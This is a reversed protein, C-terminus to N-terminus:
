EQLGLSNAFWIGTLSWCGCCLINRLVTAAVHCSMGGYLKEPQLQGGRSTGRWIYAHIKVSVWPDIWVHSHLYTGSIVCTACWMYIHFLYYSTRSDTMAYHQGVVTAGSWSDTCRFDSTKGRQSFCTSQEHSKPLYVLSHLSMAQSM